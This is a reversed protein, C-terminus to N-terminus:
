AGSRTTRRRAGRWGCAGILASVNEFFNVGARQSLQEGRDARREASVSKVTAALGSRAAEDLLDQEHMRALQEIAFM